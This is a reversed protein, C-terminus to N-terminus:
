PFVDGEPGGMFGIVMLILGGMFGVASSIVEM